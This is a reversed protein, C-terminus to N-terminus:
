HERETVSGLIAGWLVRCEEGPRGRGWREKGTLRRALALWVLLPPVKVAWSGSPTVSVKPGKDGQFVWLQGWRGRSEERRAEHFGERM